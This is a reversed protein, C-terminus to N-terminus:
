RGIRDPCKKCSQEPPNRCYGYPRGCPLAKYNRYRRKPRFRSPPNDNGTTKCKTSDDKVIPCIETEGTRDWVCKACWNIPNRNRNRNKM